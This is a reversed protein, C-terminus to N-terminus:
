ISYGQDNFLDKNPMFPIKAFYMESIYIEEVYFRSVKKYMKSCPSVFGELFVKSFPIGDTDVGPSVSM